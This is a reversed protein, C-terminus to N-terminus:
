DRSSVVFSGGLSWHSEDQWKNEGGFLCTQTSYFYFDFAGVFSGVFFTTGTNQLDFYVGWDYYEVYWRGVGDHELVWSGNRPRRNEKPWWSATIVGSVTAYLKKPTKGPPFCLNGGTYLRYGPDTRIGM